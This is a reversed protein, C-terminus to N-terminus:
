VRGAIRDYAEKIATPLDKAIAMVGLVRGGDTVIKDGVKKTGAHFIIVM